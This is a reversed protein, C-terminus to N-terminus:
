LEFDFVGEKYESSEEYDPNKVGSFIEELPVKLGMAVRVFTLLQPSYGCKSKYNKGAELQYIMHETLGTRRGLRAVSYGRAKRIMKLRAGVDKMLDEYLRM